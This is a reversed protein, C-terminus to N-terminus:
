WTWWRMVKLRIRWESSAGADGKAMGEKLALEGVMPFHSCATATTNM